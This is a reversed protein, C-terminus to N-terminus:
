LLPPFRQIHAHSAGLADSTTCFHENVSVQKFIQLVFLVHSVISNRIRRPGLPSLSVSPSHGFSFPVCVLSNCGASPPRRGGADAIVLSIFLLCWLRAGRRPSLPFLTVHVSRAQLNSPLHGLRWTSTPRGPINWGRCCRTVLGNAM